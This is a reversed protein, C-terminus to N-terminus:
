GDISELPSAIIDIKNQFRHGRGPLIKHRLGNPSRCLMGKFGTASSKVQAQQALRKARSVGPDRFVPM